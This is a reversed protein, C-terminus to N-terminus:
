SATIMGKYEQKFGEIAKKKFYSQLEDRDKISLNREHSERWVKKGTTFGCFKKKKTHEIVRPSLKFELFYVSYAMDIKEGHKITAIRGYTFGGLEGKSFKFDIVIEYNEEAYQGDLLGSKIEDPIAFRAAFSEVVRVFESLAIGKMVKCSVKENFVDFTLGRVLEEAATIDKLTEEDGSFLKVLAQAVNVGTSLTSLSNTAM